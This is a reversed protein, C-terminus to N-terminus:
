SPVRFVCNEVTLISYVETSPKVMYFGTLQDFLFWSFFVMLFFFLSFFLHLKNWNSLELTASHEQANLISVKKPVISQM